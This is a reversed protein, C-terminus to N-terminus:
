VPVARGGLKEKFYEAETIYEVQDEELILARHGYEARDIQVYVVNEYKPLGPGGLVKAVMGSYDVSKSIRVYRAM